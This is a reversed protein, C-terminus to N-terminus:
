EIFRYPPHLYNIPLAYIQMYTRLMYGCILASCIDAYLHPAYIRMYTRLMYGCILESCIDAYLHPAYIRMYTRLMYRCILASCIDAYLHPAYIRMYTRLMYGCVLASCIDAYCILYRVRTRVKSRQCSWGGGIKLKGPFSTSLTKFFKPARLSAREDFPSRTKKRPAAACHGGGGTDSM